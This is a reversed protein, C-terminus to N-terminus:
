VEIATHIPTQSRTQATPCHKRRYHQPSSCLSLLDASLLAAHLLRHQQRFSGAGTVARSWIASHREMSGEGVGAVARARVCM